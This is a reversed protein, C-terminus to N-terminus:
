RNKSPYKYNTDEKAGNRRWMYVKNHLKNRQKDANIFFVTSTCVHNAGQDGEIKFYGQIFMTTSSIGHYMPM